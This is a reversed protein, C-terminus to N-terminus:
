FITNIRLILLNFFSSKCKESDNNNKALSDYMEHDVFLNDLTNSRCIPIRKVMMKLSTHLMM